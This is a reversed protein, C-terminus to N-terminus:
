LSFGGGVLGLVHVGGGTFMTTWTIGGILLFKDGINTERDGIWRKGCDGEGVVM